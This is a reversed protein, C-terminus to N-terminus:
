RTGGVGHCDQCKTGLPKYRVASGGGALPADVHCAGCDLAAHTADLPFRTRGGHDFHAHDFDPVGFDPGTAHCRACDTTGGDAFQGVHPDGHCDICASGRARGFSRGRTDPEDTRAHCAECAARAHAGDLAFGTWRGHEFTGPLHGEFSHEDHCRACGERGHLAAPLGRGDFAGDHPDAHCTSCADAPAGFHAAALGFARGNADPHEARPHCSECRAEAHAGRLPFGADAAHDFRGPTVDAFRTPVHCRDCSEAGELADTHPDAHCTSCADVPAGFREAALGFSRGNADPHEARPHCSECAAAAHSGDLAFGAHAGHDFSGPVVDAFRTPVHCRGCSEAGELAGAHPDAHCDACAAPTGRFRVPEREAVAPAHCAGCDAKAHVGELAFATAAHREVGFASPHFADAAHCTSCDTAGSADDFQGGHPDDHCAACADRTRGPYRDAFSGSSGPAGHCDACALGAHPADLAFGTAAHLEVALTAAAGFGHDVVPHCAECGAVQEFARAHPSEHCAACSRAPPPSAGALEEVAYAGDPAHCETCARADHPGALPFDGTHRFAALEAFAHEQDHCTTCAQAM